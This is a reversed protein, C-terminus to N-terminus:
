SCILANVGPEASHAEVGFQLVKVVFCQLGKLVEQSCFINVKLKDWGVDMTVISGFPGDLGEFVIENGAQAAHVFV